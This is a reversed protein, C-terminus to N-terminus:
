DHRERFMYPLSLACPTDYECCRVLTISGDRPLAGLWARLRLSCGGDEGMSSCRLCAVVGVHLYHALINLLSTGAYWAFM